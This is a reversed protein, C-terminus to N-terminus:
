FQQFRYLHNQVKKEYKKIILDKWRCVLALVTVLEIKKWMMIKIKM